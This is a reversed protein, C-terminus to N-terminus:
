EDAFAIWALKLRGDVQGQLMPHLTRELILTGAINRRSMSHAIRIVCRMQLKDIHTTVPVGDYGGAGFCNLGLKDADWSRDRASPSEIAPRKAIPHTVRCLPPRRPFLRLQDLLDDLAVRPQRHSSFTGSPANALCTLLNNIPHYQKMHRKDISIKHSLSIIRQRRGNIGLANIRRRGAARSQHIRIQTPFDRTRWFHLFPSVTVLM